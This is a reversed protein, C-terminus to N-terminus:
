GGILNIAVGGTSTLSNITSVGNLTSSAQNFWDTFSFSIPIRMLNNMSGWNLQPDGIFKPYANRLVLAMSQTSDPQYLTITIDVAYDTLYNVEYPNQSNTAAGGLGTGSGGFGTATGIGQSVNFNLIYNLWGQMFNWIQGQGDALLRVDCTSFLPMFPKQEVPGYGYRNVGSTALQMGPLNSAECYMNLLSNTTSFLTTNVATGIAALGSALPITIQFLCDHQGGGNSSFTEKFTLIDFGM